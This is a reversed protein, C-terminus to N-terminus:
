LVKLTDLRAKLISWIIPIWLGKSANTGEWAVLLGASKLVM